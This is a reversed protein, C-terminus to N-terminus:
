AFAKGLAGAAPASEWARELRRMWFKSFLLELAANGLTVAPAFLAFAALPLTAPNYRVMGQAILFIDRTLKWYSGCEGRVQGMGRRVAELFEKKSRAWPVETYALGVSPMAHADSGGTAAKTTRAALEVSNRNLSPLMHGNRTEIAPFLDRFCEFDSFARRGTLRSFVHNASFLLQQERLYAALRLMDDRREAIEKHQRENIDYVGVHLKTGSPMRCTVEESLFFDPLKRLTEAADISDHDTVTILNMGMRKLREYVELPDNYSERCVARALPVTCMGSHVTHVHM